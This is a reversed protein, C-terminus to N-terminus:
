PCEEIEARFVNGDSVEFGPLLEIFRTAFEERKGEVIEMSSIIGPFNPSVINSLNEPRKIKETILIESIAIEDRPGSNVTRTDYYQWILQVYDKDMAGLPLVINDFTQSHGNSGSSYEGGLPTFQGIDGVRYLLRLKYKRSNSTITQATWKVNIEQSNKTNIAVVFAGLKSGPYGENEGGTNIFSFGNSGLGNIRTGSSFNYAGTTYSLSDELASERPNEERPMYVFASNAPYSGAPETASWYNFHYGCENIAKALPFPNESIGVYEFFAEYTKNSGTNIWIEPTYIDEGNHLWHSFKYGRKPVATIPVSINRFYKGSWSRGNMELGRTIDSNIDISNVRVHGYDLNQSLVTLDFTGNTRTKGYIHNYIHNIRTQVYNAVENCTNEWQTINNHTKWRAIHKPTEAAFKTKLSSFLASGFDPRFSTNLLDAYRNVFKDRFEDNELLKLLIDGNAKYGLDFFDNNSASAQDGLSLDSDYFVYRWRGDSYGGDPNYVNRTRWMRVNNNPWDTNGIYLQAIHYDILGDIDVLTNVHAFYGAGTASNSLIYNKTSMYHVDDGEGVEDIGNYVVEMLDLNDPDIGYLQQLYYNDIRERLNHIGWYEGNLYLISPESKQSGFKLHRIWERVFEDKFIIRTQDNGSNRLILRRHLVQSEKNFFPYNDFFDTGYLRLSKYRSKSSCGGHLRLKINQNLKVENNDFFEFNGSREWESGRMRFNGTPCDMAINSPNAARFDDFTKGPTYIGTEYGFLNNEQSIVSAVPFTYPNEGSTSYIYTNSKIDSPLYGVKTAMARVVTGKSIPSTPLYSPNFDNTGSITSIQNDDDSRDYVALPSSYVQTIYSRYLLAGYPNSPLQPFSNKYSYTTGALNGPSPDSGDTTYFIQAGPEAHSLSLSFNVSFFGGQKSFVPPTLFGEYANAEVNQTGPSAPFFYRMEGLTNKGYSINDKQPPFDVQDIITGNPASIVVSEGDTSSLSFDTHSPGDQTNGSAWIILFGNAPLVLQGPTSAFRFKQPNNSKDSIYYEALDISYNELNRLEIWDSYKGVNDQITSINSAMIENIRINQAHCFSAFFLFLLLLKKKM